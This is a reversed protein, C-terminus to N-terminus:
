EKRYPCHRRMCHKCDRNCNPSGDVEGCARMVHQSPDYDDEILDAGKKMTRDAALAERKAAEVEEAVKRDNTFPGGPVAHMLSFTILCIALMSLIMMGVRKAFYKAM